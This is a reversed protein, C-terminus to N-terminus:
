MALFLLGSGARLRSPQEVGSAQKGLLVVM